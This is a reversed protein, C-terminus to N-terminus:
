VAGFHKAPLRRPSAEYPERFPGAPVASQVHGAAATELEYRVWKSMKLM